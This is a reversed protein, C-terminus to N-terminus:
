KNKCKDCYYEDTIQMGKPFCSGCIWTPCSECGAWWVQDEANKYKKKCKVCSSLPALEADAPTAVAESSIEIIKSRQQKLKELEEM